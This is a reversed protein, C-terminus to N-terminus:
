CSCSACPPWWPYPSSISFHCPKSISLRCPNFNAVLFSTPSSPQHQLLCRPNFNFFAARAHLVVFSLQFPVATQSSSSVLSGSMMVGAEEGERTISLRCTTKSPKTGSVSGSACNLPVYQSYHLLPHPFLRRVTKCRTLIVGRGEGAEEM